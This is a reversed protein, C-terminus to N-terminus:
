VFFSENTKRGGHKENIKDLLEVEADVLKETPGEVKGYLPFRGKGGFGIGTKNDAFSLDSALRYSAMEHLCGLLNDLNKYGYQIFRTVEPAPYLKFSVQTKIGFIGNDGCFIGSSDPGIGYRCHRFARKLASSGTRIIEGTPIVVELGLLIDCASGYKASGYMVSAVSVAGGITSSRGPGPGVFGTYWGRKNLESELKSWTIGAEATVSMSDEDIELIENMRTLDLLIGGPSLPVGMMVLSTAAGRPWIPTKTQNAAKVIEAVEETTRPRVVMEALHGKEPSTDMSYAYLTEVDTAVYDPGVIMIIEDLM